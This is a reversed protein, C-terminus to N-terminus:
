PPPRSATDASTTPQRLQRVGVVLRGRRGVLGQGCRVGSGLGRPHLSNQWRRLRVEGCQRAGKGGPTLGCGLGGCGAVVADLGGLPGVGLPQLVELGLGVLGPLVVCRGEEVGAARRGGASWELEDAIIERSSREIWTCPDGEVLMTM